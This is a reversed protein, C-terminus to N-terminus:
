PNFIGFMHLYDALEDLCVGIPPQFSKGDIQDDPVFVPGTVPLGQVILYHSKDGCARIGVQSVARAADKYPRDVLYGSFILKEEL